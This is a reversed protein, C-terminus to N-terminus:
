TEQRAGIEGSLPGLRWNAWQAIHQAEDLGFARAFMVFMCTDDSSEKLRRLLHCVSDVGTDITKADVSPTLKENLPVM